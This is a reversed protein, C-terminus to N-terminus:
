NEFWSKLDEFDNAYYGDWRQHQRQYGDPPQFLKADPALSIKELGWVSEEGNPDGDTVRIILRMEASTWVEHIRAHQVAQGALPPM